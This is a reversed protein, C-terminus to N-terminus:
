TAVPVLEHALAALRRGAGGLLLEIQKGWLFYRHVPYSTDAGMGGHLHQTTHVVRHGADATWWAAVEVEAGADAVESLRQAALLMTVRMAEIDIYADAARMAVGQFTSLPKGFQLRSSTYEAAMALAEECVGVSLACLAVAYRQLLWRLGSAGGLRECPEDEIRVEAAPQRDTTEIPTVTVGGGQPDVLWLAPGDAGTASVLLRDCLSAGPVPVKAGTLRGGSVSAPQAGPAKHVAISLVSQGSAVRPLLEAQQRDDGLEAVAMAALLTPLLPVSAVQRGQQELLLCVETMGLGNGGHEEPIAIGLLNARALEDWLTRDFRELSLEVELLRDVAGHGEFIAAAADRVAAESETLTFDM